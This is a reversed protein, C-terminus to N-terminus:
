RLLDEANLGKEMNKTYFKILDDILKMNENEHRLTDNEEKMQKLDYNKRYLDNYVKEAEAMEKAM